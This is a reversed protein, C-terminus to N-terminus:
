YLGSSGFLSEYQEGTFVTNNSDLTNPSLRAGAASGSLGMFLGRFLEGQQETGYGEFFQGPVFSTNYNGGGRFGQGNSSAYVHGLEHAIMGLRGGNKSYDNSWIANAVRILFPQSTHVQMGAFPKGNKDTLVLYKVLTIRNLDLSRGFNKLYEVLVGLKKKEDNNLTRTIQKGNKDLAILDKTKTGKPSHESDAKGFGFFSPGTFPVCGKESTYSIYIPRKRKM